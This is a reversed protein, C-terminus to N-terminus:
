RNRRRRRWLWWVIWILVFAGVGSCFVVVIRPTNSLERPLITQQSPFSLDRLLWKRRTQTEIAELEVQISEDHLDFRVLQTATIQIQIRDPGTPVLATRTFDTRLEYRADAPLSEGLREVLRTIADRKATPINPSILRKTRVSDGGENIVAQIERLNRRMSEMDEPIPTIGM